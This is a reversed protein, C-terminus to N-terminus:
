LTPWCSFYMIVFLINVTSTHTCLTHANYIHWEETTQRNLHFLYLFICLLINSSMSNLCQFPKLTSFFVLGSWILSSWVNYNLRLLTKFLSYLLFPSWSEKNSSKYKCDFMKNQTYSFYTKWVETSNNMNTHKQGLTNNQTEWLSLIFGLPEKWPSACELDHLTSNILM